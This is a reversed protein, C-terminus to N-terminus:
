IQLLHVMAQNRFKEPISVTVALEQLDVVAQLMDNLYATPDRPM